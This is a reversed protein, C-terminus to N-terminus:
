FIYNHEALVSKLDIMGKKGQMIWHCIAQNIIKLITPLIRGVVIQYIIENLLRRNSNAIGSNFFLEESGDYYTYKHRIYSVKADNDMKDYNLIYNIPRCGIKQCILISFNRKRTKSM